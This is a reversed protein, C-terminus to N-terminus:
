VIKIFQERPMRVRPGYVGKKDRKGVSIAMVVEHHCKLGLAKKIRKSDYGEMPCTDYGYAAFGLMINECALATTKAGWVRMDANSTPERPVPRFMGVVRTFIKKFLGFIGLPGQGYAMPVLKEYYAKASAPVNGQSAFLELMQTRTRKWSKLNAVAVIIEQATRAAPQNFLAEVVQAKVNPNQVWYFEWCQLNSSNPALLGWDLVKEMIEKPVKETTYVRVSRRNQVIHDFAEPSTERMLEEHQFEPVKNFINNSDSM